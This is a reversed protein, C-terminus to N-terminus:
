AITDDYTAGVEVTAPQPTRVEVTRVRYRVGNIYTDAYGEEMPPLTVDSNSKVQGDRRM